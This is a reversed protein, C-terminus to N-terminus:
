DVQNDMHRVGTEVPLQCQKNVKRAAHWELCVRLIKRPWKLTELGEQDGVMSRGDKVEIRLSRGRRALVPARGRGEGEVDSVVIEGGRLGAEEVARRGGFRWCFRDRETRAAMGNRMARGRRIRTSIPLVWLTGTRPLM